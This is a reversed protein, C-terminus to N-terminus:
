KKSADLKIYLPESEKGKGASTSRKKAGKLDEFNVLSNLTADKRSIPLAKRAEEQAPSLGTKPNRTYYADEKAKTEAAAAQEAELERLKRLRDQEDAM